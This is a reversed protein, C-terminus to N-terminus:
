QEVEMMGTGQCADCDRWTDKVVETSGVGDCVPCVDYCPEVM